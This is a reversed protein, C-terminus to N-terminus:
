EHLVLKALERARQLARGQLGALVEAFEPLPRYAAIEEGTFVHHPDASKWYLNWFYQLRRCWECALVSANHDGYKQADYQASRVELYNDFMEAADSGLRM